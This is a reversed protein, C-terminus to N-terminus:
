FSYGVRLSGLCGCCNDSCKFCVSLLFPIERLELFFGWLILITWKIFTGKFFLSRWELCAIVTGYFVLFSICVSYVRHIYLNFIVLFSMFIVLFLTLCKVLTFYYDATQFTPYTVIHRNRVSQDFNACFINQFFLACIEGAQLEDIKKWVSLKSEGALYQIVFGSCIMPMYKANWETNTCVLQPLNKLILM